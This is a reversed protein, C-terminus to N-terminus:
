DRRLTFATYHIGSADNTIMAGGPALYQALVAFPPLPNDELAQNLARFVPNNANDRLRSRIDPSNAMEYLNRFAEEPRNFSIMGPKKQGLQRSIKSAILKFDLENGLSSNDNKSVIAQKLLKSSDSFLLYDGVFAFCPDPIRMTQENINQNRQRTRILQLTVGGFSEAEFRDPFKDVIRDLVRQTAAADTLKLGVLTAQSNMRPPKVMWTVHTARGDLADVVDTQLDVELQDGIQRAVQNEWADDGRFVDYLRTLETYTKAVDWHLTMYSAADTPVWPEPTTDGSDLAVMKLVGERPTELLVHADMVSEFEGTLMTISGGVAQLGDLGLGSMLALGAQTSLDGRRARSVLEIPDVYFVIQPPDERDGRCRSMITSFRRNDALTKVEKDGTWVGLLQKALVSDSTVVITEDKEFHTIEGRRTKLMVLQTDGFREEDRGGGQSLIEGEIREVLQRADLARDGVDVFLAMHPRGSEPAVIAFCVEGQPISLLKDLPLGVREEIRQYADLASGYLQSVLPKVQPDGTIRGMATDRFRENLEPVDTIRVYLLTDDPLLKSAAPRGAWVSTAVLLGLLCTVVAFRSHIVIERRNLTSRNWAHNYGELTALTEYPHNTDIPV